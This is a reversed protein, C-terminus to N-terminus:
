LFDKGEPKTESTLIEINSQAIKSQANYELARKYEALAKAEDGLVIYATGKALSTIELLTGAELSVGALNQGGSLALTQASDFAELAQAGSGMVLYNLGLLLYDQANGSKARLSVEPLIDGAYKLWGRGAVWLGMDNGVMYPNYGAKSNNRAAASIPGAGSQQGDLVAKDQAAAGANISMKVNNTKGGEELVENLSEFIRQLQTKRDEESSPILVFSRNFVSSANALADQEMVAAFASNKNEKNAKDKKNKKSKKNDAKVSEKVASISEAVPKEEIRQPKIKPEMSIEVEINIQKTPSIKELRNKFQELQKNPVSQGANDSAGDKTKSVESAASAGGAAADRGGYSISLALGENDLPSILFARTMTEVAENSKGEKVLLNALRLRAISDGAKLRLAKKYNVEAPTDKGEKEYLVALALVAEEYFPYLKVAKKLAEEANDDRGMVEYLSGLQYYYLPHRSDLDVAKRFHFLADEFKGLAAYTSGLNMQTDPRNADIEIARKFSEMAQEINGKWAYAIGILQHAEANNQDLELAARYEGMAPDVQGQWYLAIGLFIHPYPEEPNKVVAKAFVQAAEKYDAVSMFYLGQRLNAYSQQQMLSEWFTPYKGELNAKNGSIGLGSGGM